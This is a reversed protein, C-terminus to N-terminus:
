RSRKRPIMRYDVRMVTVKSSSTRRLTSLYISLSAISMSSDSEGHLTQREHVQRGAGGLGRVGRAGHAMTVEEGGVEVEVETSMDASYGKANPRTEHATSTLM